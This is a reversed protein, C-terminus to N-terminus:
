PLKDFKDKLQKILKKLKHKKRIQKLSLDSEYKELTMYLMTRMEKDIKIADSLLELTELYDDAEAIRIIEDELADDVFQLDLNLQKKVQERFLIAEIRAIMRESNDKSLYGFLFDYFKQLDLEQLQNLIQKGEKSRLFKEIEERRQSFNKMNNGAGTFSTGNDIAVLKGSSTVLCNGPHRDGNEILYDFFSLKNIDNQNLPKIVNGLEEWVANYFDHKIAIDKVSRSNGVYHQISGWQLRGKIKVDERITTPPVLNFSFQRDILYALEEALSNSLYYNPHEGLNLQPKFVAKGKGIGFSVLYASTAHGGEIVTTQSIKGNKLQKIIRKDSSEEILNSIASFCSTSETSALFRGSQWDGPQTLPLAILLLLLFLLTKMMSSIPM